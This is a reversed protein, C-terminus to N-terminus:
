ENTMADMIDDLIDPKKKHTVIELHGCNKCIFWTQTEFTKQDFLKYKCKSCAELKM